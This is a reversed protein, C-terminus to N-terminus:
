VAAFATKKVATEFHTELEQQYIEAEQHAKDIILKAQRQAEELIKNQKQQALIQAESMLNNKIILAEKILHNAKQQAEEIIKQYEQDAQALKEEKRQREIVATAIKNGFFYVFIGFFIIIQLLQISLNIIIDTTTLTHEM